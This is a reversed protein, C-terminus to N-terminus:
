EEKKLLKTTNETVSNPQALEGTDPTKWSGQPAFYDGVPQSQQPPLAQQSRSGAFQAPVPPPHNQMFEPLEKAAPKLVLLSFLAIMLGGFIGIIASMGALEDVDVIGWFPAMILLFFIFWFLSFILGNKRSFFSKKGLELLQPLTGGNAIVESIIGLPLGCKSCFRLDGSSQQQGCRPCFM